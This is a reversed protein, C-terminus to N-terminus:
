FPIEEDGGDAPPPPPPSAKRQQQPQPQQHGGGGGGGGGRKDALMQRIEEPTNPKRFDEIIKPLDGKAKFMELEAETFPTKDMPMAKYKSKRPDNASGERKIQWDCGNKGGPEANYAKAWDLFSDLLSGPFDIIKMTGDERNIFWCAYRTTPNKQELMLPDLVKGDQVGPSRCIVPEWHQYYEYPKGVMRLKYAKNMEFKLFDSGGGGGGGGGFGGRGADKSKWDVFAM